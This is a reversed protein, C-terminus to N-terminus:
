HMGEAAVNRPDENVNIVDFVRSVTNRSEVAVIM